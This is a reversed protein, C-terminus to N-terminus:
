HIKCTPSNRSRSHRCRPCLQKRDALTWQSYCYRLLAFDMLHRLPKRVSGVIQATTGVCPTLTEARTQCHPYKRSPQGIQISYDAIAVPEAPQADAAHRFVVNSVRSVNMFCYPTGPDSLQFAHRCPWTSLFRRYPQRPRRSCSSILNIRLPLPLSGEGRAPRSSRLESKSPQTVAERYIM